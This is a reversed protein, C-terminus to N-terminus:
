PQQPNRDTRYVRDEISERLGNFSLCFGLYDDLTNVFDDEFWGGRYGM